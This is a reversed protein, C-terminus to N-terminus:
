SRPLAAFIEVRTFDYIGDDGTCHGEVAVAEVTVAESGDSSDVSATSAEPEVGTKKGAMTQVFHTHLLENFEQYREINIMHGGELVQFDARLFRALMHSNQPRVLRDETGTLILVPYHAERLVELRKTSVYHRMVALTHGVVSLLHPGWYRAAHWDYTPQFHEGVFKKSFNLNLLAKLKGDKSRAKAYSLLHPWGSIPSIGMPGGAHTVALTLSLFRKPDLLALEQAIMGGMSLGVLHISDHWGLHDLLDRADEAFLRTSLNVYTCRTKGCCRNDFVCLQYDGLKAFYEIQHDWAACTTCFGTIFLIKQTAEPNGHLEYYISCSPASDNRNKHVEAFGLSTTPGNLVERRQEGDEALSEM